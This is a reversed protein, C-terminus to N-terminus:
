QCRKKQQQNQQEIAILRGWLFFFDVAVILVTILYQAIPLNYEYRVIANMLVWWSTPVVIFITLLSLVLFTLFVKNRRIFRRFLIGYLKSKENNRASIANAAIVAELLQERRLRKLEEKIKKNSMQNEKM